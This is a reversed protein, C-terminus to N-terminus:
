SLHSLLQRAARAETRRTRLRWFQETMRVLDAALMPEQILQNTNQQGATVVVSSRNWMANFINGLGNAVGPAIHLNVLAPRRTAEFNRSPPSFRTSSSAPRNVAPRPCSTSCASPASSAAWGM